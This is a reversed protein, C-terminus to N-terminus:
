RNPGRWANAQEEDYARYAAERADVSRADGRADPICVLSAGRRQLHGAAGNVAAYPYASAPAGNGRGPAGSGTLRPESGSFENYDRTHKYAQADAADYDNYAQQMRELAAADTVRRFGPKHLQLGDSLGFRRAVADETQHMAKGHQHPLLNPNIAGDRMVLRVRPVAGDRLIGNRDFGSDDEDETNRRTAM